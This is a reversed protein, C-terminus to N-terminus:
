QEIRDPSLQEGRPTLRLIVLTLLLAATAFISGEPGTPGGSFFPNGTPHTLFLRHASLGGSDPVGFLFSQSWDWTTHFGIAWWLSGTRWLAYAFVIGALFIQALGFTTEGGNTAHVYAFATSLVTAAIWFAIPRTHRPSTHKTLHEAFGWLGRTLTYQPYGRFSAEEALGVLLFAFLWTIGSLFIRPGHLLQADFTLHGTLHLTAILTSMIALGWAAGRFLDAIRHRAIGYSRLPRDEFRSFLWTTLFLGTFLTGDSLLLLIAPLGPAPTGPHTQQFTQQTFFSQTQISFSFAITSGVFLLCHLLLFWIGLGIPARLGFRGFLIQHATLRDEPAPPTPM